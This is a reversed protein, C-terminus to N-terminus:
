DHCARKGGLGTRSLAEGPCIRRRGNKKSVFSLWEFRPIMEPTLHRPLNARYLDAKNGWVYFKLPMDFLRSLKFIGRLKDIDDDFEKTDSYSIEIEEGEDSVVQKIGFKEARKRIASIEKEFDENAQLLLIKRYIKEQVSFYKSM